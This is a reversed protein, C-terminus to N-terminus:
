SRWVFTTATHLRHLAEFRADEEGNAEGFSNAVGHPM